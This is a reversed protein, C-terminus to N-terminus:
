KRDKSKNFALSRRGVGVQKKRYGVMTGLSYNYVDSKLNWKGDKNKKYIIRTFNSLGLRPSELIDQFKLLIRGDELSKIECLYKDKYLNFYFNLGKYTLQANRYNSFFTITPSWEWLDMSLPLFSLETIENNTIKIESQNQLSLYDPGAIIFDQIKKFQPDSILTDYIYYEFYINKVELHDYHESNVKIYNSITSLLSDKFKINKTIVTSESFSRTSNNSYEVKFIVKIVQEESFSVMVKAWFEEIFSFVNHIGYKQRKDQYYIPTSLSTNKIQNFM